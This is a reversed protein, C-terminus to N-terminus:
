DGSIFLCNVASIQERCSGYEDVPLMLSFISWCWAASRSEAQFLFCLYNMHVCDVAAFMIRYKM